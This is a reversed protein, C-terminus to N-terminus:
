DRALRVETVIRACVVLRSTMEGAARFTPRTKLRTAFTPRTKRDAAFSPRTKLGAAIPSPTAFVSSFMSAAAAILARSAIARM